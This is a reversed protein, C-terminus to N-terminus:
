QGNAHAHHQPLPHPSTAPPRQHWPRITTTLYHDKPHEPIYRRNVKRYHDHLYKRILTRQM